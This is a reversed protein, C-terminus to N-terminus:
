GQILVRSGITGSNVQFSPNNVTVRITKRKPFIDDTELGVAARCRGPTFNVNESLYLKEKIFPRGMRVKIGVNM